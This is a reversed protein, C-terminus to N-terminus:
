IKVISQPQGVIAKPVLFKAEKPIQLGIQM